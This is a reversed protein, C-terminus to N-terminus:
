LFFHKSLFEEYLYLDREVLVTKLRNKFSTLSPAATVHDPLRNYVAPGVVHTSKETRALRHASPALKDAGRTLMSSVGPEKQTKFDRIWQRTFIAVQFIVVSPLTLIKNSIFLPKASTTM